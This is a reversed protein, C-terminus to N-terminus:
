NECERSPWTHAQISAKLSSLWECLVSPNPCEVFGQLSSVWSWHVCLQTHTHRTLHSKRLKVIMSRNSQSHYEAGSKHLNMWNLLCFIWEHSISWGWPDSSTLTHTAWIPLDLILFVTVPTIREGESAFCLMCDLCFSSISFNWRWWPVGPYLQTWCKQRRLFLRCAPHSSQQDPTHRNGMAVICSEWVWLKIHGWKLNLNCPKKARSAESASGDM